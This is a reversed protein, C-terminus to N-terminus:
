DLSLSVFSCDYSKQLTEHHRTNRNIIETQIYMHIRNTCSDRGLKCSQVLKLPFSDIHAGTDISVNNSFIVVLKNLTYSVHVQQMYQIYRVNFIVVTVIMHCNGSSIELTGQVSSHYTKNEKAPCSDERQNVRLVM